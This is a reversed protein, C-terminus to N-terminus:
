PSGVRSPRAAPPPLRIGAALAIPLRGGYAVGHVAAIVPVPLESWVWAARQAHNVASGDERRALLRGGDDGLRMFSAFDLGACFGRGEGSLVVARLSPDAALGRGSDVLGAFMA